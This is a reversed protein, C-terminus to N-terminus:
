VSGAVQRGGCARQAETVVLDEYFEILEVNKWDVDYPTSPNELLRVTLIGNPLPDPLVRDPFDLPLVEIVGGGSEVTLTIRDFPPREILSQQAFAASSVVFLLILATGSAHRWHSTSFFEGEIGSAARWHCGFLKTILNVGSM